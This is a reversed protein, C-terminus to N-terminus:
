TFKWILIMSLYILVETLQQVAGLCDGTYGGIWKRFYNGSLFSVLFVPLVILFDRTRDTYLIWCVVPLFTLFIACFLAATGVRKVAPAVKSELGSVYELRYVLILSAFRSLTHAAIFQGTILWVSALTRQGAPLVSGLATTQQLAAFKLALVLALGMVGFTGLRSDKMIVLIKEKTWGGGFGDCADAFGDEHFAGTLLVTGTMSLLIGIDRGFLYQGAVYVLASFVGAIWGIVPLYKLTDPLFSNEQYNLFRSVPVRTYFSIATLLRKLEINM